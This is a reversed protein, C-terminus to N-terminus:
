ARYSQRLTDREQNKMVPPRNVKAPRGQRADQASSMLKDVVRNFISIEADNLGSLLSAEYELALPTIEQLLEHGQDTLKLISRRRDSDAFRRHVRDNRILRSVARSVAVKDMLTREAVEIASLGPFRGLIVIVRWEPITLDYHSGYITSIANSISHSLISLRYPIFDELVLEVQAECKLAISSM